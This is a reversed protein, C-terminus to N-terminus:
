LDRGDDAGQSWFGNVCHIDLDGDDDYDFIGTGWAWGSSKGGQSGPAEVLKGGEQTMITNGKSMRRRIDNIDKSLDAPQSEEKSMKLVRNAATSSMNSVYMDLDLDNDLDCFTASMSFGSDIKTDDDVEASFHVGEVNLRRYLVNPGFDNAVYLDIDGDEDADGFAGIFSWRESETLLGWAETVDEFQNNGLNRLLQNRRGNKANTPDDPGPSIFPGYGCLYIDLFGDGDVDHASLSGNIHRNMMPELAHPVFGHEANQEMLIVPIAKGAMVFDQDGDRDFDAILVSTYDYEPDIDSYPRPLVERTRDQFTGDGRNYLVRIPEMTILDLDDDGDLDALAVGRNAGSMPKPLRPDLYTGEFSEFTADVFHPATSRLSYAGDVPEFRRCRWEGDVLVWESHWYGHDHQLGGDKMERNFRYKLKIDVGYDTAHVEAPKLVVYRVRVCDDQAASLEASYDAISLLRPEGAWVRKVIGSTIPSEVYSTPTVGAIEADPTFVESWEPMSSAGGFRGLIRVKFALLGNGIIENSISEEGWMAADIESLEKSVIEQVDGTGVFDGDPKDGQGKATPDLTPLDEIARDTDEQAPQSTPVESPPEQGLALPVAVLLLALAGASSTLLRSHYHM